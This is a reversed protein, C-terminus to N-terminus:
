AGPGDVLTIPDSFNVLQLDYGNGSVDQQLLGTENMRYRALVNPLEVGANGKGDNWLELITQAPLHGDNIILEAVDMMPHRAPFKHDSAILLRNLTGATTWDFIPTQLGTYVGNFFIEGNVNVTLMIYSGSNIEPYAVGRIISRESGKGNYIEIDNGVYYLGLLRSLSTSWTNFIAKYDSDIRNRRILVSVCLQNMKNALVSTGIDVIGHQTNGDFPVATLLNVDPEPETQQNYGLFGDVVVDVEQLELERSDVMVTCEYVMLDEFTTGPSEDPEERRRTLPTSIGEVELGQLARHLKLLLRDRELGAEIIANAELQGKGRDTYHTDALNRQEVFFRLSVRGHQRGEGVSDWDTREEDIFVAPLDYAYMEDRRQPQQAYRDIWKVEPVQDRIRECITTYLEPLM